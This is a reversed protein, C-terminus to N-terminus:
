NESITYRTIEALESIRKVAEIKGDENLVSYVTLIHEADEDFVTRVKKLVDCQELIMDAEKIVPDFFDKRLEEASFQEWDEILESLPVELAKALKRITVLKPTNLAKEYQAITQQTVNMREGLVRQSIGKKERVKKLKEGFTM